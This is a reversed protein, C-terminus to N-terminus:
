APNAAQRLVGDLVTVARGIVVVRDGQLEVGVVGARASLQLGVMSTKGLRDAWFPALVTHSSGTVPDEDIGDGPAFVRSVFDHAQGLDAVATVRGAPAQRAPAPAAPILGPGTGEGPRWAPKFNNVDVRGTWEVPAGLADAIPGRLDIQEPIAAPFDMALSGDERRTVTLVGSRTAFRVPSQCGDEIM